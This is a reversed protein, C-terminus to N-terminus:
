STVGTHSGFYVTRSQLRQNLNRDHQKDMHSKNKVCIYWYEFNGEGTPVPVAHHELAPMGEFAVDSLVASRSLLIRNYLFAPPKGDEVKPGDAVMWSRKQERPSAGFFAMVRRYKKIDEWYEGRTPDPMTFIFIGGPKLTKYIEKLVDQFTQENEVHPLSRGTCIVVDASNNYRSLNEWAGEEVINSKGTLEQLKKRATNVHRKNREIGKVNTYGKEHLVSLTEGMGAGLDLIAADMPVEYKKLYDLLIIEQDRLSPKGEVENQHSGGAVTHAFNIADYAEDLTTYFKGSYAGLFQIAYHEIKEKEGEPLVSSRMMSRLTNIEESFGNARALRGLLHIRTSEDMDLSILGRLTLEHRNGIRMAYLRMDDSDGSALLDQPAYKEFVNKMAGAMSKALDIAEPCLPDIKHTALIDLLSTGEDFLVDFVELNDYIYRGLKVRDKLPMRSVAEELVDFLPCESNETIRFKSGQYIIGDDRGSMCAGYLDSITIDSQKMAAEPWPLNTEDTGIIEGHEDM